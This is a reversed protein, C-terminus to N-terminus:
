DAGTLFGLGFTGMAPAAQQLLVLVIVVLAAPAAAAVAGVVTRFRDPPRVPSVPAAMVGSATGM